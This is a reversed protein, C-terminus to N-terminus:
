AECPKDRSWCSDRPDARQSADHSWRCPLTHRRYPLWGGHTRPGGVDCSWSVRAWWTDRSGWLLVRPTAKLQELQRDLQRDLRVLGARVMLQSLSIQFIFSCLSLSLKSARCVDELIGVGIHDLIKM